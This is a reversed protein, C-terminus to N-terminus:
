VYEYIGYKNSYISIYIYTTMREDILSNIQRDKGKRKGDGM